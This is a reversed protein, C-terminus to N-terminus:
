GEAPTEMESMEMIVKETRSPVVSLEERGHQFCFEDVCVDFSTNILTYKSSRVELLYGFRLTSQLHHASTRVIGCEVAFFM